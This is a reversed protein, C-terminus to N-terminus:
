NFLHEINRDTDGIAAGIANVAMGRRGSFFAHCIFHQGLQHRHHAHGVLGISYDITKLYFQIFDKFVAPTLSLAFRWIAKTLM